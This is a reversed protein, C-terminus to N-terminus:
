QKKAEAFMLLNASTFLVNFEEPHRHRLFILNYHFLISLEKIFFKVNKTFLKIVSLLDFLLEIKNM